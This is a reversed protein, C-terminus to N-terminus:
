RLKGRVFLAYDQAFTPAEFQALMSLLQARHDTGHNLVQFLVQWVQLGDPGPQQLDDAALNALYSQLGAEVADWRARVRPRDPLHVPNAWGPPDVGRLECFWSHEVNLMHVVQNRISGVSYPLKQKFQEDTLGAISDAWLKHNAAFHSEYLQRFHDANM